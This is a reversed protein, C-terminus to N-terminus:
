AVWGRAFRRLGLPVLDWLLIDQRAYLNAPKRFILGGSRDKSLLCGEPTTALIMDLIRDSGYFFPSEAIVM